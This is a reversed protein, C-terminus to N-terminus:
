SSGHPREQTLYKVTRLTTLIGLLADGESMCESVPVDEGNHFGEPVTGMM